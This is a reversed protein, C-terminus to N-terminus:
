SASWFHPLLFTAAVLPVLPWVAPAAILAWSLKKRGRWFALWAGGIGIVVLVPWALSLYIVTAIRTAGGPGDALLGTMASLIAIPALLLLWTGTAL